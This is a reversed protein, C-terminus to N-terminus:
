EELFGPPPEGRRDGTLEIVTGGSLRSAIRDDYAEGLKELSLNSIFIAPRGERIDIARKVYEYHTDTVNMRAGIEDLVVINAKAWDQWLEHRTIRFGASTRLDGFEADRVRECWDGVTSYLGGYIDIVVLAACTKGGGAEGVMVLPWPEDGAIVARLRDATEPDIGKRERAKDPLFVGPSSWPRKGLPACSPKTDAMM